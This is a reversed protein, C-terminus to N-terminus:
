ARRARHIVTPLCVPLCAPRHARLGAHSLFDLLTAPVQRVPLHLPLAKKCAWSAAKSVRQVLKNEEPDALLWGKADVMGIEQLGAVIAASQRPSIVPSRDSFYSPVLQRVPSQLCLVCLSVQPSPGTLGIHKSPQRGSQWRQVARAADPAPVTGGAAAAGGPGLRALGLAV